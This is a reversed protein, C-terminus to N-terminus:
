TYRPSVYLLPNDSFHRDRTEQSADNGKGLHSFITILPYVTFVRAGLSFPLSVENNTASFFSTGLYSM